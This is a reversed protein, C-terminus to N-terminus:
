RIQNQQKKIQKEKESNLDILYSLHNLASTLGLSTVFDIQWVKDQALTSIIQYYGWFKGFSNETEDDSVYDSEKFLTGYNRVVGERFKIFFFRERL